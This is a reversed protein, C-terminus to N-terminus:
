LAKVGGLLDNFYYIFLKDRKHAGGILFQRNRGLRRGYNHHASQLARALGRKAALKGYIQFLVAFFRKQYPAINVTGRRNVLKFYDAFVRTRLHKFLARLARDFGRLLRHLM